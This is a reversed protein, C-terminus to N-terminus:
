HTINVPLYCKEGNLTMSVDAKHRKANVKRKYTIVDKKGDPWTLVFETDMDKAGDFDGFYLYYRGKSKLLKLGYFKSNFSGDAEYGTGSVLSSPSKRNPIKYVSGEHALRLERGQYWAKTSDLIDNGDKRAYIEIDVPVWELDTFMRDNCSVTAWAAALVLIATM